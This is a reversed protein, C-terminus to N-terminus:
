KLLEDYIKFYELYNQSSDFNNKVHRVCKEATLRMDSNCLHKVARSAEEVNGPTVVMGTGDGVLEPMATTNYVIAPTGCAMGEAITLGFTEAQSFSLVVDASRYYEALKAISETPELGIIGDPLSAIQSKNMGLLVISYECTPLLERLKVYDNIGKRKDWGSAVALLMKKGLINLENKINAEGTPHLLKTDVGNYVVKRPIKGLFSDGVLDSLWRSVPALVLRDRIQLFSKKKIEYNITSRDLFYSTPFDRNLPCEYCGSKWRNCGHFVFHGCHGTFPWCDHITWVVPINKTSLFDFLLRYNIWYGHLNHLHIISPNIDQINKLLKKTDSSSLLGANDFVRASLAHTLVNIRKSSKILHSESSKCDRGYAIYSYWGQSIALKGIEEAIRGTSGVGATVNLQLLTRENNM